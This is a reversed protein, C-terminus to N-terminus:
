IPWYWQNQWLRFINSIKSLITLFKLSKQPAQHEHNRAVRFWISILRGNPLLRVSWLRIPHSQSYVNPLLPWPSYNPMKTTAKTSCMVLCDLHIRCKFQRTRRSPVNSLYYYTDTYIYECTCQKTMFGLELVCGGLEAYPCQRSKHNKRYRIKLTASSIGYTFLYRLYRTILTIRRNGTLIWHCGTIISVLVQSM